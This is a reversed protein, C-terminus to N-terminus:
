EGRRLAVGGGAVPAAFHQVYQVDSELYLCKSGRSLAVMSTHSTGGVATLTTEKQSTM